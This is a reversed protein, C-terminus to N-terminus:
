GKIKQEMLPPGCICAIKDEGPGPLHIKLMEENIRGTSYPWDRPILNGTLSYHIQFRAPNQAALLDLEERCLIDEVLRNVYIISVKTTQDSLDGFIGQVVQLIPTIGSGACVMGLERVRKETGDLLVTGQGKWIFHGIPGKLEVIDGVNLESFGLTM